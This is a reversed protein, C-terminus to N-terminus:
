LASSFLLLFVKVILFCVQKNLAYLYSNCMINYTNVLM